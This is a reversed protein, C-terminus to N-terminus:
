IEDVCQGTFPEKNCMVLSQHWNHNVPIAERSSSSSLTHPSHGYMGSGERNQLIIMTVIPVIPNHKTKLPLLDTNNYYVYVAKLM